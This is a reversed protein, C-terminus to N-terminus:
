CLLDVILIITLYVTVWYLGVALIIDGISSGGLTLSHDALIKFRTKDSAICYTNKNLFLIKGENEMVPMKGKNFAMVMFNLMGGIGTLFVPPNLYNEVAFISFSITAAGSCIVKLEKRKTMKKLFAFM